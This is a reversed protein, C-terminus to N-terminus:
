NFLHIELDTHHAIKDFLINLNLNARSQYILATNGAIPRMVKIGSGAFSELKKSAPNFHLCFLMRTSSFPFM